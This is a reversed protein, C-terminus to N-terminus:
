LEEDDELSEEVKQIAHRIREIKENMAAIYVNLSVIIEEAAEKLQGPLHHHEVHTIFNHQSVKGRCAMTVHHEILNIVRRSFRIAIAPDDLGDGNQSEEQANALFADIEERQPAASNDNYLDAIAAQVTSSNTLNEERISM